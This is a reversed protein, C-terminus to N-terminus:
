HAPNPKIRRTVRNTIKDTLVRVLQLYCLFRETPRLPITTVSVFYNRFRTLTPFRASWNIGPDLLFLEKISRGSGLAAGLAQPHLRHYFLYEPVEYIKGLMALEALTNRDCGYYGTYVKTKGFASSRMLGLLQLCLLDIAIVNYLRRHPRPSMTDIEVDFNRVFNGHEDIVKTKPYCVVVEPAQDFATVCQRLFEPHFVDDHAAGLFFEGSSLRFTYYWNQMAGINKDNRYYRVRPDRAVYEECITQTNDTSANDAIILEFDAFTQALLSNLAEQLYESGNFVPLGISVRPTIHNM